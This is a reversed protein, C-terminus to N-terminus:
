RYRYDPSDNCRESAQFQARRLSQPLRLDQDRKGSFQAIIRCTDLYFRDLRPTWNVLSADLQRRMAAIPTRYDCSFISDSEHATETV